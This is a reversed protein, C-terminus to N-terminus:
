KKRIWISGTDESGMLCVPMHDTLWSKYEHLLYSNFNIIDYRENDTLYARLIYNENWFWKKEFVWHEPLEFPYYIDHFHIIV